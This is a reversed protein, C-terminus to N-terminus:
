QRFPSELYYVRGGRDDIPAYAVWDVNITDGMRSEMVKNGIRTSCTGCKGPERHVHKIVSVSCFVNACQQHNITKCVGCRTITITKNM